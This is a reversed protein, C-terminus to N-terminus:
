EIHREPRYTDTFLLLEAQMTGDSTADSTQTEECTPDVQRIVSRWSAEM